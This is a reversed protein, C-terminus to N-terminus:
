GAWGVRRDVVAISGASMDTISRDDVWVVDCELNCRQRRHQRHIRLGLDAVMRSLNHAVVGALSYQSSADPHCDLRCIEDVHSSVRNGDIAIHVSDTPIDRPVFGQQSLHCEFPHRPPLPWQDRPGTGPWASRRLGQGAVCPGQLAAAV